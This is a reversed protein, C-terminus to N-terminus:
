TTLENWYAQHSPNGQMFNNSMSQMGNLNLMPNNMRAELFPGQTYQMNQNILQQPQFSTFSGVNGQLDTMM